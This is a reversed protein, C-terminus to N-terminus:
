EKKRREKENKKEKKKEKKTRENEFNCRLYKENDAIYSGDKHAHAVGIFRCSPDIGLWDLVSNMKEKSFEELPLLFSRNSPKYKSAWEIYKNTANVLTSFNRKTFWASRSQQVLDKRYNVIFKSCPFLYAIYDLEDISYRIEKFGLIHPRPTRANSGIAEAIYEREIAELHTRNVKRHFFAHNWHGAEYGLKDAKTHLDMIGNFAGYNEGAIYMGPVENLMTMISTSGSRGTAVVFLWQQTGESKECGPAPIVGTGM